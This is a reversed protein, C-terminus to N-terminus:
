FALRESAEDMIRDIAVRDFLTRRGVKRVVGNEKGWRRVMSACIGMYEAAEDVNLLRKEIM